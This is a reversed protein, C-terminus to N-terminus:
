DLKAAPLALDSAGIAPPGASPAPDRWAAFRAEEAEIAAESMTDRDDILQAILAVAEYLPGERDRVQEMFTSHAIFAENRFFRLADSLDAIKAEAATPHIRKHGRTAQYGTMPHYYAKQMEDDKRQINGLPYM